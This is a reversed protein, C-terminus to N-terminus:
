KSIQLETPTGNYGLEYAPAEFEYVPTESPAEHLHPQSVIGSPPLPPPVDDVLTDNPKRQSGLLYGLTLFFIMGIAVGVGIGAIAGTSLGHATPPNSFPTQGTTKSNTSPPKHKIDSFPPASISTNPLSTTTSPSISPSTSSPSTMTSPSKTRIATPDLKIATGDDCRLTNNEGCCWGTNNLATGCPTM